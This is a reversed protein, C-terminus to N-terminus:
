FKEKLLIDELILITYKIYIENYKAIGFYSANKNIYNFIEPINRMEIISNLAYKYNNISNFYEFAKKYNKTYKYYIMGLENRNNYIKDYKEYLEIAEDYKKLFTLSKGKISIMKGLIYEENIKNNDNGLANDPDKEIEQIIYTIDNILEKNIKILEFNDEYYMNIKENLLEEKHFVESIAMLLKHEGIKHLYNARSFHGENFEDNGLIRLEKPSKVTLQIAKFYDNVNELFSNKNQNNDEDVILNINNSKMFKYFGARDENLNTEYFALFTKARTIIVYFQKLESCFEFIEHKDYKYNLDLPYVFSKLEDKIKDKIKEESDLDNYIKNLKLTQILNSIKEESLLIGLQVFSTDNINKNIGGTLNAFMKHWLGQFKSSSFFNYVIVLEFELGKCQEVNLKYIYDIYLQDLEQGDSENNYIFCHNAALTYDNKKSEEKNYINTISNIISNINNLIIPKQEIIKISFDDQFKDITNPFLLKMLYAM